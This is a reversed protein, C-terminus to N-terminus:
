QPIKIKCGPYIWWGHDSSSKGYKKATAEIIERNANYIAQWKSGAGFFRQAIAWLTDGKKIVYSTVAAAARKNENGSGGNKSGGDGLQLERYELFSLQYSLDGFGGAATARYEELYVDLNIPYGTVILNLPTGKEMWDILINHYYAPEKWEGRMMSRDTRNVGPFDSDWSVKALGTGTPVAVEGKNMIDYSVFATDGLRYEIEEPLWPIRIERTGEREKIYIDVNM